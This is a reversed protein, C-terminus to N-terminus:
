VLLESDARSAGADALEWTQVVADVIEIGNVTTGFLAVDTDTATHPKAYTVMATRNNFIAEVITHDVIAHLRVTVSGDVASGVVPLLPGNSWHGGQGTANVGVVCASIGHSCDVQLRTAKSGDKARLVEVGFPASPLHSVNFSFSAVVELQMSGKAVANKDLTQQTSPKRLVQLEPVFQQLLEYDESLSLDRALSQSAPTGGIWGVLVRRGNVAVQNPDSGLTRAMTLSGYDYYGVAGVKDWFADFSGGNAQKGVWFTPGPRNQTVVRTTGKAPDGPLGGFYDSTVFEATVAGPSAATGSKTENTTFMAPL